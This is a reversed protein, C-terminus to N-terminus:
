IRNLTVNLSMTLVSKNVNYMCVHWTCSLSETRNVCPNLFHEDGVFILIIREEKTHRPEGISPYFFPPRVTKCQLWMWDKSMKGDFRNTGQWILLGIWKDVGVCRRRFYLTVGSSMLIFWCCFLYVLIFFFFLSFIKKPTEKHLVSPPQTHFTTTPGTIM